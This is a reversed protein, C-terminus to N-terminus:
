RKTGSKQEEYKNQKKIGSIKLGRKIRSHGKQVLVQLTRVGSAQCDEGNKIRGIKIGCKQVQLTGVVKQEM